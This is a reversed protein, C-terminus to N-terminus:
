FPIDNPSIEETQIQGPLVFGSETLEADPHSFYAVDIFKGSVNQKIIHAKIDKGIWNKSDEGYADILGNLSTQNFSVNKEEGKPLKILFVDQTGFQGEVKKGENAVKLIDGNKFDIGKKAFQGISVQKKYLM